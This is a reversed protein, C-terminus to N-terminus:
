FAVKLSLGIQIANDVAPDGSPNVVLQTYPTLTVAGTLAVTYYVEFISESGDAGSDASFDALSWMVGAQDDDRGEFTGKAVVGAAVHTQVLSVDSDAFACRAFVFLGKEADDDGRCCVQQQATVYVGFTGDDTTADFREYEGTHHWVGVGVRGAGLSGLSEWLCGAEGIIYWSDSKSDSFFTSPGRSGTPYGDHTAGDFVGAGAYFNDNPTYFVLAGFAPDPYTPMDLLNADWTGCASIFGTACPLTAFEANSDIKGLKVRLQGDFFVQQYWVEALQDLHRPSAIVDTGQASGSPETIEGGYHYFDAYVTGGKWAGSTLPDLDLTLNVDVLRRSYGGRSVGGSVVNTWDWRLSGAVTLGATELSTRTGGWDGTLRSWEIWPKGDPGSWERPDPPTEPRAGSQVPPPLNVETRTKPAPERGPLDLPDAETPVITLDIPDDLTAASCSSSTPCLAVMVALGAAGTVATISSPSSRAACNKPDTRDAASIKM